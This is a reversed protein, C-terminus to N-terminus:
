ESSQEHREKFERIAKRAYWSVSRDQDKALGELFEWLEKPILVYRYGERSPYRKPKKEADGDSPPPTKRKAVSPM